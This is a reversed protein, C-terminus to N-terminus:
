GFALHIQALVVLFTPRPGGERVLLSHLPRLVDEDPDVVDDVDVNEDLDSVGGIPRGCRGHDPLAM